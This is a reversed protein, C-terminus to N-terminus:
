AEVEVFEYEGTDIPEPEVSFDERNLFTAPYPIKDAPRKEAILNARDRGM